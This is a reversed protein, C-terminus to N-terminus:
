IHKKNNKLMNHYQVYKLVLQVRQPINVFIEIECFYM